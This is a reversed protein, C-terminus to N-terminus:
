HRLRNEQSIWYCWSYYEWIKTILVARTASGTFDPNKGWCRCKKKQLNQKETNCQNIQILTSVVPVNKRLNNLKMNLTNFKTNKVVEEDVVDSLKKFDKPVTKLNGVDLYDVKTNLNNFGTSFKVLENIESMDVKAKWAIFDKKAALDSTDVGTAHEM